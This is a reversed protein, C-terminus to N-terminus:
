WAKCVQMCQYVDDVDLFGFLYSWLDVSLKGLNAVITNSFNIVQGVEAANTENLVSTLALTPAAM